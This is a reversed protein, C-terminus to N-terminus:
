RVSTYGGLVGGKSLVVQWLQCERARFLGACQQLYYRWMRYFRDGYKPQLQPWVKEFNEWWAMLTKDYYPGFNHWDEIVFFKEAEISLNSVAPLLANPFIYKDLWPDFLKSPHSGGITHVLFLGHKDLLDAAHKFYTHYNKLGVHEFMGVSVIADFKGRLDRYDILEFTVPLGQCRERSYKLQEKSVTIGMVEVGYNRAMYDSLGGWGSGIDLVKMGKKLQLKQCILEFKANQADNLNDADKWYGCSYAMSPGLMPEYLDNGLDYHKEGVQFARSKSQMNTLVSSMVFAMDKLGFTVTKNLEAKLVKTFFEDLQDCEWWGDVYSEGLALTGGGLIRKFVRPDKVQMDGPASGNIEIGAKELLREGLQYYQDTKM